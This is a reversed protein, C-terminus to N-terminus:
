HRPIQQNGAEPAYRTITKPEAQNHTARSEQNFGMM